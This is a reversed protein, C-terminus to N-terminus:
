SVGLLAGATRRLFSGADALGRAVRGATSPSFADGPLRTPEVAVPVPGLPGASSDDDAECDVDLPICLSPIDVPLRDLVDLGQTVNPAFSNRLDLRRHEPNYAGDLGRVMLPGADLLDRVGEINATVSGLTRQLIAIDRELEARNASVLDLGDVSVRALNEVLGEIERRERALLATTQAFLDLVEGLESERTLLTAAFQDYQEMIRVLTDDKAAFTATLDSLNGLASGLTAGNGELVDAANTILRGAGDPDLSDLFERLAELAEDPEVPVVTREPPIVAGDEMRPAGTTWAPFLHVTREGILSQPVLAAGADSPVPVDDDIDMVVVVRDGEAEVSRVTGAALGLVRVQSAPYLAVARDFHVTVEYTGGSVGGFVGCSPLLLLAVVAAALRRARV